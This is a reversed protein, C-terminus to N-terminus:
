QESELRAMLVQSIVTVIFVAVFLVMSQAAAYGQRLGSVSGGSATAGRGGFATAFVMMGLTSTNFQGGTITMILEFSQLSGIIALLTNVTATSWIMPLTIRWFVQWEGAGDIYAAEYIDNSINQLGALFIVLSYGMHMWIQSAIVAPFAYDFSSLVAPPNEIGMVDKMLLFVPGTPTSFMLKWVTAVVTVGLIEPMFYVARYLNRGRLFKRNLIVAMLLAIGNQILTVTVAYIATRGLVNKLDRVNQLVFFEKYNAWGIWKWSTGPIGSIDTFSLVANTISPVLRFILYHLIGPLMCLVVAWLSFTRIRARSRFMKGGKAGASGAQM